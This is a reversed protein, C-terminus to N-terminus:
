IIGVHKKLEWVVRKYRPLYTEIKCDGPKVIRLTIGLNKCKKRKRSDREKQKKLGDEGYIPKYHCAGNIEVAFNIDPFYFDLELPGIVSRNNRDYKINLKKVLEEFQSEVYSEKFKYRSFCQPTCFHHRNRKIYIPSKFVKKGCKECEVQVKNDQFEDHCEKSCFINNKGRILSPPRHLIKDCNKCNIKIRKNNYDNRCEISCCHTPSRKQEASNKYFKKNCIVCVVKNIKQYYSSKCKMDCFYINTKNDNRTYNCRYISKNCNSCRVENQKTKHKSLCMNNCYHFKSKEICRKGRRIKEGCFDCNIVKSGKINNACNRSCCNTKSKSIHSPRKYFEKGCYDCNILM